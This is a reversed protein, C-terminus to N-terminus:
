GATTAPAPPKRWIAELQLWGAAVHVPELRHSRVLDQLRRRGPLVFDGYILWGGPELVRLMETLALPWDSIHHTVKNSAVIRFRGDPFPLRAADATVFRLNPRGAALARAAAIQERDVDVGTVELGGVQAVRIAAQGNGCGVDLYRAGPQPGLRRLREIAQGAARESHTRSNVFRKELRTMKM